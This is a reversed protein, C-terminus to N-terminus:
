TTMCNFEYISNLSCYIEAVKDAHYIASLDQMNHGNFVDGLILSATPVLWNYTGDRKM